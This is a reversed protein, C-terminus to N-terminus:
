DDLNYMYIALCIFSAATFAMSIFFYFTYETGGHFPLDGYEIGLYSTFIISIATLVAAVRFSFNIESNRDAKGSM